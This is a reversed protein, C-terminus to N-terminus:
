KKQYVTAFIKLAHKAQHVADDLANHHVGKRALKIDPYQNNLTRYCRDRSCSWPRQMGSLKYASEIIVNDFTAGNGWVCPKGQLAIFSNLKTLADKLPIQNSLLAMRAQESQGLWWTVTSADMKMGVDVCSQPSVNTYFKDGIKGTLLNFACAGISVIVADKGTGFTELDLMVHSHMGFPVVPRTKNVALDWIKKFDEYAIDKNKIANHTKRCLSLTM